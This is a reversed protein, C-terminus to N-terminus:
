MGVMSRAQRDTDPSVNFATNGKRATFEQLCKIIDKMQCEAELRFERSDTKVSISTVDKEAVVITWEDNKKLIKLPKKNGM